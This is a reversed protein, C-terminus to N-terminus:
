KKRPAPTGGQAPVQPGVGEPQIWLGAIRGAPNFVVKFDLEAKAFKCKIIVIDMGEVQGVQPNSPKEFAGAQDTITKWTDAITKANMAAKVQPDCQEIIADFRGETMQRLVLAAAQVPNRAAQTSTPQSAGGQTTAAGGAGMQLYALARVYPKLFPSNERKEVADKFDKIAAALAEASDSGSTLLSKLHYNSAESAQSVWKYNGRFQAKASAALAENVAKVAAERVKALEGAVKEIRAKDVGPVEADVAASLTSMEQSLGRAQQLYVVARLYSADGQGLGMAVETDKDEMLKKIDPDAPTQQDRASGSRAAQAYAKAANDLLSLAETEIKAALVAHSDAEKVAAAVQADVAKKKEALGARLTTLDTMVAKVQETRTANAKLLTEIDAAQRTAEQLEVDLTNLGKVVAISQRGPEAVYKDEIFDGGHADDLRAGELTGSKLAMARLSAHQQVDAQKGYETVYRKVDAPDKPNYGKVELAQLAKGAKDAEAEANAVQKTKDEISTKLAAMQKQVSDLQKKLLAEQAALAETEHTPMRAEVDKSREMLRASQDVLRMAHMWALRAESRRALAENRREMGQLNLISARVGNAAAHGRMSASGVTVALAADAERLAGKLLKANEAILQEVQRNAKEVGKVIQGESQGLDLTPEASVTSADPVLQRYRQDLEAAPGQKASKGLDRSLAQFDELAGRVLEQIEGGKPPVAAPANDKGLQRGLQERLTAIETVNAQYKELLRVAKEASIDAEAKARDIDSQSARAFGVIAVVLVAAIVAVTVMLITSKVM